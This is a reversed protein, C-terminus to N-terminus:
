VHAFPDREIVRIGRYGKGSVGYKGDIKKFGRQQLTEPFTRQKSGPDENNSVAYMRWSDWLTATSDAVRLGIECCEAIWQGFTDQEAFYDDTAHDVIAPRVLGNSQWDLCGQLLWSLIGPYEAKLREPLTVDKQAPPHDFPLVMFRRRIAADVDRLSPRNNGFITLKFQPLFEFDDQRMFRATVKDQGTLTKIRNEAWARGKETESARAMRSGDLRAIETSHRDHKAATLTEMGVNVAYEQLVDAITNIATGKGSGGPGYVFLLVQERTDGTLSYGGWQQLFRIAAADRGLAQDLFAIWVPCHRAPDFTALDVPAVATLRSIRDDPKGPHLRGSRLDVTGGPTGLLWPDRNWADSTCAFERVTRAGREIAEWTSVRNLAKAKPDAKALKTSLAHAYHLALKTEERRWVNGDFRLWRGAHHDFLLEGKYRATFARIVGDEDLAYPEPQRDDSLLDSLDNPDYPIDDFDDAGWRSWGSASAEADRILHAFTVLDARDDDTVSDYRADTEKKSYRDCQRAWDHFRQRGDGNGRYQRFLAFATRTFQGQWDAGPNPVHRMVEDIFSESLSMPEPLPAGPDRKTKNSKKGIPAIDTAHDLYRADVVRVDPASNIGGFYYSQSLTFSEGGLIGGLIGNLRACLAERESPAFAVSLPCLVRWRPAETSHRPSTHILATVDAARLRREAEDISVQEKDYDGEIGTVSLVNNDFRFSGDATRADGFTALKLLPLSEKAAGSTARIRKALSAITHTETSLSQAFRDAFVTIAFDRPDTGLLDTLDNYNASVEVITLSFAQASEATKTYPPQM